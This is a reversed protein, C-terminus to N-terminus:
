SWIYQEDFPIDNISLFRRFEDEFSETRHHERQGAIYRRLEDLGSEEVAFAGYGSQWAFRSLAIGQTKMWRSSSSKVEEVVKSLPLTRHLDFLIHIHDEVSNILVPHCKLDVLISASYRHLSDRVADTIVRERNKTSYVLHINVKSLSQPM